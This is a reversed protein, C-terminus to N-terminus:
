YKYKYIEHKWGGEEVKINIEEYSVYNNGKSTIFPKILFKPSDYTSQAIFMIMQNINNSKMLKQAYIKDAYSLLLNGDPHSHIVGIFGVNNKQWKILESNIVEINPKYINLEPFLRMDHFFDTIVNNKGGLVGGQEPKLKGITNKIQDYIQM